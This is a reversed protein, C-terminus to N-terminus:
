SFFSPSTFVFQKNNNEKGKRCTGAQHADNRVLYRELPAAQVLCQLTANFFCTNGLNKLGKVPLSSLEADTLPPPKTSTGNALSSKKHNGNQTPSNKDDNEEQQQHQQVQAKEDVKKHVNPYVIALCDLLEQPFRRTSSDSQIEPVVWDDCLYCWCVSDDDFSKNAGPRYSIAVSHEVPQATTTTAAETTTTSGDGDGVRNETTEDSTTTTTPQEQDTTDEEDTDEKHSEFHHL